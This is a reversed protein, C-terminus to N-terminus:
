GEHSEYYYWNDCIKERYDWDGNKFTSRQGNAGILWGFSKNDDGHAYDPNDESFYYGYTTVNDLLVAEKYVVYARDIHPLDDKNEQVYAFVEARMQAREVQGSISGYLLILPILLIFILTSIASIIKDFLAGAAEALQPLWDFM